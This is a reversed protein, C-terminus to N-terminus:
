QKGRFNVGAQYAIDLLQNGFATADLADLRDAIRKLSIAKSVQVEREGPWTADHDLRAEPELLWPASV